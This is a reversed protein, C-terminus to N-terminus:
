LQIYIYIYIYIYKVKYDCCLYFIITYKEENITVEPNEILENIEAFVDAFGESLNHYNEAARIIAIRHVDICHLFDNSLRAYIVLQVAISLQNSKPLTRKYLHLYHPHLICFVQHITSWRNFNECPDGPKEEDNRVQFNYIAIHCSQSALYSDLLYKLKLM